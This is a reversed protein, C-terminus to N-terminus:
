RAPLKKLDAAANAAEQTGPCEKVVSQYVGKAQPIQKLEVHTQGKRYLASCKRDSTPYKELVTDFEVQAEPFKKQDFLAQALYFQAASARVDGPFNKLFERFDSAALDPFGSELQGFAQQFAQGAGPLPQEATKLNNIERTM